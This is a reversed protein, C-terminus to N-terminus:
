TVFITSNWHDLDHHYQDHFNMLKQTYMQTTETSQFKWDDLDHFNNERHVIQVIMVKKFFTKKQTYM